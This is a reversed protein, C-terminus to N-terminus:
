FVLVFLTRSISPVAIIACIPMQSRVAVTHAAMKM